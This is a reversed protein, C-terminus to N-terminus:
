KNQVASTNKLYYTKSVRPELLITFLDVRKSVPLRCNENDALNFIKNLDTPVCFNGTNGTWTKGKMEAYLKVYGQYSGPIEVVTCGSDAIRYWGEAMWKKLNARWLVIVFSIIEETDKNCLKLYSTQALSQASVCKDTRFDERLGKKCPLVKESAACPRQNLGGCKNQAFVTHSAFVFIFSIFILLLFKTPYFTQNNSISKLM